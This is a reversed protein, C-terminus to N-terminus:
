AYHSKVVEGSLMELFLVLEFFMFDLWSLKAGTLWEREGKLDVIAQLLPWCEDM